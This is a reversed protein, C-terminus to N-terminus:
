PRSSILHMCTQFRPSSKFNCVSSLVPAITVRFCCSTVGYQTPTVYPIPIINDCLVIVREVPVNIM